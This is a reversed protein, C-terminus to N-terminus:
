YGSVGYQLLGMVGYELLRVSWVRTAQCEMSYYGRVGYELLRVSWVRTAECKM